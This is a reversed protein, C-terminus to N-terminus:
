LDDGWYHHTRQEVDLVKPNVVKAFLGKNALRRSLDALPDKQLAFPVRRPVGLRKLLSVSSTATLDEGVVRKTQHEITRKKRGLIHKLPPMEAPLM